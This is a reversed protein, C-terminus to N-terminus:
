ICLEKRLNNADGETMDGPDYPLETDVVDVELGLSSLLAGYKRARRQAEAEPDFLFVVNKYRSALLKIQGASLSTGFSAIFGDGLRWADFVGEVVIARNGKCNDMNYFVRKPDIISQEISCNKYRPIQKGTTDRAQYSILKGDFYIPIMIRFKWTGAIGGSKIGYKEILYDPDFKRSLLYKRDVKSLERGEMVVTSVKSEKKKNLQQVIAHSFDFRHRIDAVDDSGIGLLRRLIFDLGSGGCKFCHYYDGAINFGGHFSMDGCLPCNINIWGDNVFADFPISYESCM